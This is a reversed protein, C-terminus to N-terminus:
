TMPKGTGMSVPGATSTLQAAKSPNRMCSRPGSLGRHKVSKPMTIPQVTVGSTSRAASAQGSLKLMKATHTTQVVRKHRQPSYRSNPNSQAVALRQASGPCKLKTSAYESSTAAFVDTTATTWLMRTSKRLKPTGAMRVMNKAAGSKAAAGSGM